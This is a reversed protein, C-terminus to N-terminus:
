YSARMHVYTGYMVMLSGFWSTRIMHANLRKALILFLHELREKLGLLVDTIDWRRFIGVSYQVALAGPVVLHCPTAARGPLFPECILELEM